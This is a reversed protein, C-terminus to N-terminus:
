VSSSEESPPEGINHEREVDRALQRWDMTHRYLAYIRDDSLPVKQLREILKAQDQLLEDQKKILDRLYEMDAQSPSDEKPTYEEKAKAIADTIAAMLGYRILFINAENDTSLVVNCSGDDNDKIHEIEIKMHKAGKFNERGM